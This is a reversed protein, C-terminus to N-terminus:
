RLLDWGVTPLVMGLCTRKSQIYFSVSCAGSLLGASNRWPRQKLNKSSDRAQIEETTSQTRYVLIFGNRGGELQKQDSHEIGAVPLFVLVLM